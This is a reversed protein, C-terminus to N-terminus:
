LLDEDDDGEDELDEDAEFMEEDSEETPLGEVEYEDSEDDFLGAADSSGSVLKLVQVANLYLKVGYRGGFSWCGVGSAVRVISGKWVDDPDVATKGDSAVVPVPKREDSADTAFEIFPQDLEIGMDEVKELLRKDVKKFPSAVEAIAVGFEKAAASRFEKIKEAYSKLEPDSKDFFVTIKRKLKGSMDEVPDGLFVWSAIGRPSKIKGLTVSKPKAASKRSSKRAM